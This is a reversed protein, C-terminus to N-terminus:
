VPHDLIGVSGDEFLAVLERFKELAGEGFFVGSGSIVRSMESMSVFDTIGNATLYVPERRCVEKYTHPNVPWAFTKYILKDM